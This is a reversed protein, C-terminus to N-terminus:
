RVWRCWISWFGRQNRAETRRNTWEKTSSTVFICVKILLGHYLYRETKDLYKISLFCNPQNGRALLAHLPWNGPKKKMPFNPAKRYAQFHVCLHFLASSPIHHCVEHGVWWLSTIDIGQPACCSQFLRTPNTELDLHASFPIVTVGGKVCACYSAVLSWGVDCSVELDACFYPSLSIAVSTSRRNAFGLDLSFNRM